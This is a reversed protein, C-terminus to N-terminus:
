RTLRYEVSTRARHIHLTCSSAAAADIVEPALTNFAFMGYHHAILHRAGVTSALKGAEALTLNGAIGADTLEKRRGNVPLLAIEPRLASVEAVLGEFPVTDGSHYIRAGEIEALYGLFRLHGDPSRELTEHAAAVATIECGPLPAVVEGADVAILRDPGIGIRRRAEDISARPIVFRCHPHQIAIPGLTAPDMHDTHHHTVLVLDVPPLEDIKVPPEMMREHSFAKGRYKQALSDSLYPDILVLRGSFRVAFGAQGLWFLSVGPAQVDALKAALPQPFPHVELSTM